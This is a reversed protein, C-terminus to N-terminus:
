HMEIETFQIDGSQQTNTKHRTIKRWMQNAVHGGHDAKRAALLVASEGSTVKILHM